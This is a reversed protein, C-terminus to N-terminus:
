LLHYKFQAKSSSYVNSPDLPYTLCQPCLFSSLCTLSAPHPQSPIRSSVRPLQAKTQGHPPCFPLPPAPIHCSSESLFKPPSNPSIATHGQAQQRAETPRLQRRPIDCLRFHTLESGRGAGADANQSLPCSNSSSSPARGKYVWLQSRGEQHTRPMSRTLGPSPQKPLSSLCWDQTHGECGLWHALQLITQVFGEQWGQLWKADKSSQHSASHRFQHSSRYKLQFRCHPAM